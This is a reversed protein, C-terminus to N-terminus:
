HNGGGALWGGCNLFGVHGKRRKWDKRKEKRALSFLGVVVSAVSGVAIKAPLAGASNGSMLRALAM